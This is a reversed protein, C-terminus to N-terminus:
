LSAHMATQAQTYHDFLLSEFYAQNQEYLQARSKLFNILQNENTILTQV